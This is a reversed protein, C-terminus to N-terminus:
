PASLDYLMRCWPGFVSLAYLVTVTGGISVTLWFPLYISLWRSLWEAQRRHSDAMRRLCSVMRPQELRASLLWTLLPPMGAIDRSAVMEGRELRQALLGAADRFRRDGSADAALLLAQHYPVHHEILLALTDALTAMRGARLLKRVTPFRRRGARGQGSLRGELRWASQSRLWWVALVAMAVPPLWPLWSPATSVIWQLVALGRGNPLLQQYAFLMM